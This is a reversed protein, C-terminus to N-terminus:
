AIRSRTRTHRDSFDYTTDSFNGAAPMYGTTAEKIFQFTAIPPLRKMYPYYFSGAPHSPYRSTVKYVVGQPDTPWNPATFTFGNDTGADLPDVQLSVFVIRDAANTVDKRYEEFLKTGYERACLEYFKENSSKAQLKLTKFVTQKFSGSRIQTFSFKYVM